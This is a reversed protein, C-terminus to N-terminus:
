TRDYGDRVQTVIAGDLIVELPTPVLWDKADSLRGILCRPNQFDPQLRESEYPPVEILAIQRMDGRNALEHSFKWFRAIAAQCRPCDSHYLLVLQREKALEEGIDIYNLLPFRKGIWTEPKLVVIRGDGSIVGAESLTAPAYSAMAYAAPLGITFWIMLVTGAKVLVHRVSIVFPGRPRWRLLSLVIATDLTATLFPNLEWRGFCGCSADGALGKCLSVLTFTSFCALAVAWAPKPLIGTLLVLSGLWEAEVLCIVFWKASLLGHGLMPGTCCQYCKTTAAILLVTAVVLRVVRWGRDPTAVAEGNSIKMATVGWFVPAGSAAEVVEVLPASRFLKTRRGQPARDM